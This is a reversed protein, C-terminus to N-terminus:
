PGDEGEKSQAEDQEDAFGWGPGKAELYENAARALIVLGLIGAQQDAESLRALMEKVRVPDLVSRSSRLREGDPTLRLQVMRRDSSSRERSVYGTKVLKEVAISMTAPTVGMHRALGNLSIPEEVDLHSLIDAQHTTLIRKTKPDQVHRTHCAFFIRPYLEMLRDAASDPVEEPYLLNNSKDFSIFFAGPTGPCSYKLSAEM